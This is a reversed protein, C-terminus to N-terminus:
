KPGSLQAKGTVKPDTPEPQLFAMSAGPGYKQDFLHATAPNERLYAIARISPGQFTEAPEEMFRRSADAGTQMQPNAFRTDPRPGFWGAPAPQMVTDPVRPMQRHPQQVLEAGAGSFARASEELAATEELRRLQGATPAQGNMTTNVIDSMERAIEKSQVASDIASIFASRAFPGYRADLDTKIDALASHMAEGELGKAPAMIIRAESKTVPTRLNEPIGVKEQADVRARILDQFAAPDDPAARVADTAAIVEPSTSVSAAPDKDRLERLKNVRTVAKDYVKQRIDFLDSGPRPEAEALREQLDRDPLSDMDHLTNFEMQAEAWDLRAKEVQNKTLLNTARELATRGSADMPAKGTQRIEEAADRLEQQTKESVTTKIKNELEMRRKPTLNQYPGDFTPLTAGDGSVNMSLRLRGDLRTDHGRESYTGTRLATPFDSELAERDAETVGQLFKVPDGGSADVAAKIRRAHKDMKDISGEGQQVSRDAFFALVRPDGAMEKPVGANTLRESIGATMARHWKMEADHLEVPMAGAANKWQEDFSATGPKATLGFDKGYEAIFKQMSGGSNLGFNGYSKTGGADRAISSVGQLPDDTGTELQGSIAAIGGGETKKAGDGRIDKLVAGVDDGREVRGMIHAEELDGFGKRTEIDREIPTLFPNADVLGKYDTGIKDLPEGARARSYYQNTKADEISALASRKQEERAFSAAGGYFGRETDFLKGDYKPKMKEPVTDLFGKASQKYRDAWGDAFGAAKGPEVGRMESELAQQQEWKFEQFRRETEFEEAQDKATGIAELAASAKAMGQGLRAVGEGIASADYRAMPTAPIAPLGGLVDRTPLKAM